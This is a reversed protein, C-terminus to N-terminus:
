LKLKEQLFKEVRLNVAEPQELIVAHSGRRLWFIECNRALKCIKEYHEKPTFPDSDGAIVLLPIEMDQLVDKGSHREFAVLLRALLEYDMRALHTLFPEFDERKAFQPNLFLHRIFEFCLPNTLLREIVPEIFNHLFLGAKVLLEAIPKARDTGLFNTLPHEFPGSIDVVGRVREPNNKLFELAVQFGTSHGVLAVSDVGVADLVCRLDSAIVSVNFNELDHPFDSEGHGRIDWFILKYNERLAPLFYKWFSSSAGISNVLAIPQGEGWTEYYILTGDPARAFDRSIRM